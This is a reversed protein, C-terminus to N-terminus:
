GRQEEGKLREHEQCVPSSASMKCWQSMIANPENSVIASANSRLCRCAEEVEDVTWSVIMQGTKSAEEAMAPNLLSSAPGVGDWPFDQRISSSTPPSSSNPPSQNKLSYLFLVGKLGKQRLDDSTEKALKSDQLWIGVSGPAPPPSIEALVAVLKHLADQTVANGKPELLLRLPLRIMDVSAPCPSGLVLKVAESLPVVSGNSARQIQAMTLDQLELESVALIKKMETPHGIYLEGESARSVDLDFRCVGQQQLAEISQRSSSFMGRKYGRHSIIVPPELGHCPSAPSQSWLLLLCVYAALAPVLVSAFLLAPSMM